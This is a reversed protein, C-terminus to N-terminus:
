DDKKQDKQSSRTKLGRSSELGIGVETHFWHTEKPYPRDLAM